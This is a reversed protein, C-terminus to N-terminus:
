RSSVDPLRVRGSRRDSPDGDTLLKGDEVLAVIRAQLMVDGAQIYPEDNYGMTEAIVRTVSRWEPTVRELILPDFCDAPASVMGAATVIRFPANEARLQRWTRIAAEKFGPSASQESGLLSGLMDPNVIGVSQMPPGLETPRNRRPFRRGTVDIYEYPRDGLRDAWALLFALESSRYRGFWVVLRDKTAAMRDWFGSLVPEIDRDDYFRAWWEAREAPDGSAIPGCSLDDLFSLVEDDSGAQRIAYRLSGGASDGPAIHLTRM